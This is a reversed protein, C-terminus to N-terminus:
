PIDFESRSRWCGSASRGLRLKKGRGSSRPKLSQTIVRGTSVNRASVEHDQPEGGHMVTRPDEDGAAGRFSVGAPTKVCVRFGRRKFARM